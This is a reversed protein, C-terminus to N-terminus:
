MSGDDKQMCAVKRVLQVHLHVLYHLAPSAQGEDRVRRGDALELPHRLEEGDEEEEHEDGQSQTHM